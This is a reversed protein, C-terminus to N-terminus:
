KFIEGTEASWFLLDLEDMPIKVEQSFKRLKNELELYNLKTITKPRTKIIGYKIMNKLIHVDLIALDRGFGINRLFHSAEKFGIGKVNKAFWNRSGVIDKIDIREKIFISGNVTFQKRAEYLYKSKNNPFRVGAIESRIQEINGKFLNGSKILRKVAKDCEVAKAQPTCICFCLESFIVSQPEHWIKKFDKLRNKLDKKKKKYVSFLCQIM